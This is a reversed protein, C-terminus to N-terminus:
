DNINEHVAVDGRRWYAAARMWKPNAGNNEILQKRLAKAIASECAVWAYYDGSPLKMTKLTRSLV